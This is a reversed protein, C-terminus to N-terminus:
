RDIRLRRVLPLGFWLWAMVAFVGAAVLAATSTPHLMDSVVFVTGGIALSLFGTGIIALHNATRLLREKDGRRFLIRHYTTPAMLAITAAATALFSAFYWQRQLATMRAFGSSLPVTLLFAFLVQVGPLAVRLENLLEILERDLREKRSEEDDDGAASGHPSRQEPDESAM